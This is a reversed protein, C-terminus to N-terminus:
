FHFIGTVIACEREYPELTLQERPRLQLSQLKQIERSFVIDRSSSQDVHIAKMSLIFHGRGKLFFNANKWVINVQDQCPIDSYIVDVMSILMRFREPFRANEIVPIVNARKQTLNILERGM